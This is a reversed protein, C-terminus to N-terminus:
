DLSINASKVVQAWRRTEAEQWADADKWPSAVVEFGQKELIDRSKPDTLAARLKESLWEVVATPTRKPVAINQWSYVVMGSIGAEQMTPVDPLGPDRREGTCAVAILKGAKVYPLVAGLNMFMVNVQGSLTDTIAAGGGRYPVDVGETHTRQRFLVASLHDSSGSGSNAYSMRDPHRKAYELLEPLTRVKLNPNVVLVNPTRVAQTLYRFDTTPDYNLKKYVSPNIAFTGISGILMTYGDPAARKLEVAGISGNAGPKNDIVVTQGLVRTLAPQIARATIDSSGGPVFPVIMTLPHDPFDAAEGTMSWCALAAVAILRALRFKM